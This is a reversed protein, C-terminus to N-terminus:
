LKAKIAAAETILNPLINALEGHQVMLGPYGQSQLTSAPYKQNALEAADKGTANKVALVVADVIKQLRDNAARLQVAQRSEIKLNRKLLRVEDVMHVYCAPCVQGEFPERHPDNPDTLEDFVVKWQEDDPSINHRLCFIAM